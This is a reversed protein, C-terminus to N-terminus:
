FRGEFTNLCSMGYDHIISYFKSRNAGSELRTFFHRNPFFEHGISKFFNACHSDPDSDILTILLSSERRSWEQLSRFDGSLTCPNEISGLWPGRSVFSTQIVVVDPRILSLSDGVCGALMDSVMYLGRLENLLKDDVLTGLRVNPPRSHNSEYGIGVLGPLGSKPLGARTPLNENLITKVGKM